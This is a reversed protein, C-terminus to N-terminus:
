LDADARAPGDWAANSAVHGTRTYREFEEKYRATLKAQNAGSSRLAPFWTSEEEEMHDLVATQIAELKELWEPGAPDTLELDAMQIKVATQEAYATEAQRAPKQTALVPYLVIEEALSHGNLLLALGKFATLRAGGPAAAAAFAFASRIQAHHELAIAFWDTRGAPDVAELSSGTTKRVQKAM